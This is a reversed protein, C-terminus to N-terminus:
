SDGNTKGHWVVAAAEALPNKGFNKHREKIKEKGNKREVDGKKEGERGRGM